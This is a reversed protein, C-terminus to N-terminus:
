PEIPKFAKDEKKNIYVLQFDRTNKRTFFVVLCEILVNLV